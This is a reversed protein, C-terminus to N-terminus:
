PSTLPALSRAPRRAWWHRMARVVLVLFWVGAITAVLGGLGMVGLGALEGTTRVHQEGAYAKRGLGYMGGLGFGLAFVAQGLGFLALQRRAGRAPV